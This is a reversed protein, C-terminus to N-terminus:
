PGHLDHTTHVCHYPGKQIKSNQMAFVACKKHQSYLKISEQIKSDQTHYHLDRLHRHECM